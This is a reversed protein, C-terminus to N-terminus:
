SCPAAADLGLLVRGRQVDTKPAVLVRQNITHVDRFLGDLPDTAYLALARRWMVAAPADAERLPTYTVCIRDAAPELLAGPPASSGAGM